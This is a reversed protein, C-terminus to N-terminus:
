DGWFDKFRDSSLQTYIVPSSISKHGLFAQLSRTDVGKNTLAFGTSHRLM